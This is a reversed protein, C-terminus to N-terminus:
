IKIDKLGFTYILNDYNILDNQFTTKRTPKWFKHFLMRSDDIKLWSANNWYEFKWRYFSDEHSYGILRARKTLGALFLHIGSDLDDFGEDFHRHCMEWGIILGKLEVSMWCTFGNKDFSSISISNKKYEIEADINTNLYNYIEDLWKSYKELSM